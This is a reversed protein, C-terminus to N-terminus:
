ESEFQDVYRAAELPSLLFQNWVNEIAIEVELDKALPLVGRIEAISRDWADQYSVSKTVVAPVLLVSTGGLKRCDYLATELGKRGIARVKPDPDSLPSSWHVSDVVGPI